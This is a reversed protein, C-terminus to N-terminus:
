FQHSHGLAGGLHALDKPKRDDGLLVLPKENFTSASVMEGIRSIQLDHQTSVAKINERHRPPAAFLLEYDDGGMLAWKEADQRAEIARRAQLSFPIEKSFIACCLKSAKGLKAGDGLLGDSLDMSASMFPALAQGIYNRPQPLYYRDLLYDSIEETLDTLLGQRIRLGLASDGLSGTVYVDDGLQAKSRAPYLNSAVEGLATIAIALVPSKVTDGGLLRIKHHKQDEALGKAFDALWDQTIGKPLHLSLTYGKPRAGKSALDSLNTRLAKQAILHAPEDGFFHTGAVISDSTIVIKHGPKSTITAADDQLSFNQVDVSDKGALPAFYREIIAFEELETGSEGSM